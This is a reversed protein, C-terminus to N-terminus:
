QSQTAMELSVAMFCFGILSRHEDIEKGDYWDFPMKITLQNRFSVDLPDFAEGLLDGAEEGGLPAGPIPSGDSSVRVHLDGALVLSNEAFEIRHTM